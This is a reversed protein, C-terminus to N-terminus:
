SELQNRENLYDKEIEFIQAIKPSITTQGYRISNQTSEQKLYTPNNNQGNCSRVQCFHNEIGDQNVLAPKIVSSPFQVQKVAVM